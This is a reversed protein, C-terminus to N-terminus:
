EKYEGLVVKIIKEKGKSLVKLTVEDGPKFKRIMKALSNEQTIKQGNLELIIDNEVLGAK